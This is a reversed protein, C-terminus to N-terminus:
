NRAQQLHNYAYEIAKVITDTVNETQFHDRMAEVRAIFEPYSTTTLFLQVMKVHSQEFDAENGTELGEEASKGNAVFEPNDLKVGLESPEFGWDVLRDPNFNNALIDFDWIGYEQNDKILFEQKQEDTLDTARKVPITKHGLEKAARWRMNGGLIIGDKDVIVPRLELMKPFQSISAKLKQFKADKIIRPNDPNIRISDIEVLETTPLSQQQVPKKTNM